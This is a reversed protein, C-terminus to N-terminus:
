IELLAPAALAAAITATFRAADAGNVVRHDYSLSLPLMTRWLVEGDPGPCAQKQAKCVGLIAVEPANIIPTFATGGFAGLSSISFCGGSMERTSLGKIRAKETVEALEQALTALSKQDCDRLVPVLLGRPTDVAIGIHFYKKYAISRGGDTLAANFQPFARLTATVAKILPVLVTLKPGDGAANWQKRRGELDTIDALDHHTVHPIAVWNRALFAATFQQIKGLPKTEVEGFEAFDVEPWAPLHDILGPKQAASM